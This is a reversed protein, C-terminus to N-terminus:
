YYDIAIGFLGMELRLVGLGKSFVFMLILRAANM